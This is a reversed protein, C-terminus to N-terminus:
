NSIEFFQNAEALGARWEMYAYPLGHHAHLAKLRDLFRETTDQQWAETGQECFFVRCGLPRITHTSCLGNIQYSCAPNLTQAKPTPALQQLSIAQGSRSSDNSAEIKEGSVGSGLGRVGALFWAIELGTVYLRHGYEEFKCCRGSANCVPRRDVVTQDLDAYLEHIARDIEDRSM